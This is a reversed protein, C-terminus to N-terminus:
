IKIKREHSPFMPIVTGLRVGLSEPSTVKMQNKFSTFLCMPSPNWQLKADQNQFLTSKLLSRIWVVKFSVMFLRRVYWLIIKPNMTSIGRYLWNLEFNPTCFLFKIKYRIKRFILIDFISRNFRIFISEDYIKSTVAVLVPNKELILM